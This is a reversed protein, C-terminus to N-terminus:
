KRNKKKKKKKNSNNNNSKNENSVNEKIEEKETAEEVVETDVEEVSEIEETEFVEETIEESQEKTDINEEVESETDSNEEEHNEEVNEVEETEAQEEDEKLDDKFRLLYDIFSWVTSLLVAGLSVTMFINVFMEFLSMMMSYEIFSGFGCYKSNLAVGLIGFPIAIMQFITKIKGSLGAALDKEKDAGFMRLGNVFFDRVIVIAIIWGPMVGLGVLMIFGASVLLKDALPDMIKGFKTVLNNKRALYGDLRDTIAAVVFIGFAVYLPWVWETPLAMFVIFVPVLIMRILTLKNPLNMKKLM